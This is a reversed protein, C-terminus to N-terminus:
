SWMISSSIDLYLLETVNDLVLIIGDINGFITVLVKGYTSRFRIGKHSGIM